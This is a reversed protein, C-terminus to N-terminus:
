DPTVTNGKAPFAISISRQFQIYPRINAERFHRIMDGPLIPSIKGSDFPVALFVNSHDFVDRRLCRLESFLKCVKDRPYDTLIHSILWMLHSRPYPIATTVGTALREGALKFVRQDKSIYQLSVNPNTGPVQGSSDTFELFKDDRCSLTFV